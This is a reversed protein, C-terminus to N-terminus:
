DKRRKAALDSIAQKGARLILDPWSLPSHPWYFDQAFRPRQQEMWDAKYRDDGTGFDIQQVGDIDIVHQFMAASLVTGPSAKEAAKDYALKHILAIGHDVTWLQAAVPAGEIFAFGLRLAGHAAENEAFHRIFAPSGEGPKWSRNYVSEYDSWNEPTVMTDIRVSIEHSRAKRRVTSRMRGPRGQWYDDFSRDGLQLYHNVDCPAHSTIWGEQRFARRLLTAESNDDPIQHLSIRHAKRRAIRAISRLLSMRTVEDYDGGFIPGCTFSYWNALGQLRWPLATQMLFLWAFSPHEPDNSAARFIAPQQRPLCHAHLAEFWELRQFLSPLASRSLEERAQEQVAAFNDHYEGIIPMDHAYGASLDDSLSKRRPM